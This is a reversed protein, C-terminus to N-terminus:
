PRATAADPKSWMRPDRAPEPQDPETEERRGPPEEAREERERRRESRRKKRERRQKGAARRQELARGREVLAALKLQQADSGSGVGNAAIIALSAGALLCALPALVDTFQEGTFMFLLDWSAGLGADFRGSLDVLLALAPLLGLAVLAAAGLRGRPAAGAAAPILAQLGVAVLLGLYPNALWIGFGALAALSLAAAPATGALGLSPPLLPRLLFAVALVVLIAVAIGIRGSLGLGEEAPDFPFDPSPIMGVTAFVYVAAAGFVFPVARLAAWGLARAAEAPSGAGAALGAGAVIAVSALLALGLLALTWGPLLNGVLGIYADPGHETPSPAADLALILALTARGFRDLTDGSVADPDDGSAPLPLEGDSSLRVSDLGAAILPGQEGLGSPIALRFLESLPDEDGAPRGVEDSVIASATRELQISTSEPGSSWPIVLPPSPRVAAPQSLVIATDLLNAESYDRIFRRAGLAGISAGDTSVLVLTKEHTSGGLAAAIELLAATSAIGSAAGPGAASDRGAILAIQRETRGPLVLILNRLEVDDGDFSAQFRQEALEAGPIAAFRAQVLDALAADQDSGPTPASQSEALDGALTTAAEGDFADPSLPPRLPQPVGQLSFMAILGAVPVILLTARWLRLDIV